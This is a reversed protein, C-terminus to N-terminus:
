NVNAVYLDYNGDRNSVFAIKGGTCAANGAPTYSAQSIEADRDPVSDAITPGAIVQMNLQDLKQEPYQGPSPNGIKSSSLVIKITGQQPDYTGSDVQGVIANDATGYRYSVAGFSDTRMELFYRPGVVNPVRFSVRWATDGPLSSLDVLKMTFVLKSSGVTYPEAISVREIDHAPNADMSDGTQDILVTVGPLRCATETKLAWVSAAGTYQDLPTAAAYMIRVLYRGTGYARPDFDITEFTDHSNAPHNASQSIIYLGNTTERLLYLDYDTAALKWSIKIRVARNAWDAASGDLSLAFTDCDVGERCSAATSMASAPGTATGTWIVPETASPSLTAGAPLAARTTLLPSSVLVAFYLALAVIPAQRRLAKRRCVHKFLPSSQDSVSAYLKVLHRFM